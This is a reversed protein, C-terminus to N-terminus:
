VKEVIRFGRRDKGYKMISEPKGGMEKAVRSAEKKSKYLGILDYGKYLEVSVFNRVMTGGLKVMHALNEGCTVWELNTYHNNLVNGDIHNVQLKENEPEGVYLKAVLRHVLYRHRTGNESLDVFRYKNRTGSFTSLVNGKQNIVDGNEMVFYNMFKKM